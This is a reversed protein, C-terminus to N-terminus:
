NEIQGVCNYLWNLPDLNHSNICTLISVCMRERYKIEKSFQTSIPRRKFTQINKIFYQTNCIYKFLFACFNVKIVFINIIIAMLQLEVGIYETM